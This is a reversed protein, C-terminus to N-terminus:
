DKAYFLVLFVVVLFFEETFEEFDLLFEEKFLVVGEFL